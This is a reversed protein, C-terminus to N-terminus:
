ARIPQRPPRISQARMRAKTVPITFWSNTARFSYRAASFRIRLPLQFPSQLEGVSLSGREALDTAIPRIKLFEHLAKLCM